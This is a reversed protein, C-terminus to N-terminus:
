AGGARAQRDRFVGAVGLLVLIAGGITWITLPERLVISGLLLAGVPNVYAYTFVVSTPLLRLAQIFATFTVVSGVVVLYAWAWWAEATPTPIPEQAAVILVLFGAAGVLHQLASSAFPQLNLPRRSQLISGAGWAIPAGILALLTPVDASTGGQLTPAALVLLGSFGIALSLLLLGTPARRDLVSEILAVWIPTSGVLLAAYGSDARQEGWVVLGNGGLWLLLASVVLLPWENRRLRIRNKAWLALLLLILGAVLLRSGALFLPSFGAGERVAIRIALYTGSWGLYVVTLNALGAPTIASPGAAIQANSV